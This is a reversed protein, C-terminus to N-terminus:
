LLDPAADRVSDALQRAQAVFHSTIETKGIVVVKGEVELLQVVFPEELNEALKFRHRLLRKTIPLAREVFHKGLFEGRVLQIRPVVGIREKM